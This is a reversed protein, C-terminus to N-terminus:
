ELDLLLIPYLFDPSRGVWVIPGILSLSARAVKHAVVNLSRRVLSFVINEMTSVLMLCDVIMIQFPSVILM